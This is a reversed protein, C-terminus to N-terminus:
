KPIYQEINDETLRVSISNITIKSNLKSLRKKASEAKGLANADSENHIVQRHLNHVEVVDSDIITICKVGAGAIFELFPSGVGGAGVCCISAEHIYQEM